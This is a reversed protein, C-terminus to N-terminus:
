TRRGGVHADAAGREKWRAEEREGGRWRWRAVAGRPAGRSSSPPWRAVTASLLRLVGGAGRARVGTRSSPPCCRRRRALAAPGQQAQSSRHAKSPRAAGPLQAKSPKKKLFKNIFYLTYLHIYIYLYM